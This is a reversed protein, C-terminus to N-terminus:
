SIYSFKLLQLNVIYIIMFVQRYKYFNKSFLLKYTHKVENEQDNPETKTYIGQAVRNNYKDYFNIANKYKKLYIDVKEGDTHTIIIKGIIKSKKYYYEVSVDELKFSYRNTGSHSVILSGGATSVVQLKNENLNWIGNMYFRKNGDPGFISYDDMNKDEKRTQEIIYSEEVIADKEIQKEEELEEKNKKEIQKVKNDEGYIKKKGYDYVSKILQGQVQKYDFNLFNEKQFNRKNKFLCVGLCIYIIILAIVLSYRILTQFPYSTINSIKKNKIKRKM